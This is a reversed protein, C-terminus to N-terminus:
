AAPPGRPHAALPCHRPFLGQALAVPPPSAEAHFRLAAPASGIPGHEAHVLCWLCLEATHAGPNREGAADLSAAVVDATSRLPERAHEAQHLPWATLFCVMSMTYVWLLASRRFRLM